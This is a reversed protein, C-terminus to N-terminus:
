AAHTGGNDKGDQPLIARVVRDMASGRSGKVLVRVGPNLEDALKAALADHNDFVEAGEGFAEAAGASLEGLAFLRAIGAEKAKRGIQEHMALAGEGLERMDGIVLWAERNESRAAQALTRIAAAMSGPNANYSDDVLTAGHPTKAAVLRGQVQRANELGRRIDELSVDLGFAIAAAALANLVNHMGPFQIRVPVHGQPTVLTFHSGESDEVIDAAKVDAANQIGFRVVRHGHARDAFFPAFADDANIVAVGQPLLDDYVASKTDAINQLSGMREMHAPAVNNVLGVTPRAIQTLYRIDGPKGTGMEYIAFKVDEPAAIVALPMGIENNRNGPTAYTKGAVELVAQTLTKVSTKGNSGTIAVVPNTRRSQIMTAIQALAIETNEVRVTSLGEIVMDQSVLAARIGADYAQALHDHADFNEGKLSIFLTSAIDNMGALARTDTAVQTIMVDEGTLTGHCAAALQSLPMPNM